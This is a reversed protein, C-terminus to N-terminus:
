IHGGSLAQVVHEMVVKDAGVKWWILVMVHRCLKGTLDTSGVHSVSTTGSDREESLSEDQSPTRPQPQPEASARTRELEDQEASQEQSREPEDWRPGTRKRSERIRETVSATVITTM